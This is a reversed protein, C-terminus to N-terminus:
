GEETGHGPWCLEAETVAAAADVHGSLDDLDREVPALSLQPLLLSLM